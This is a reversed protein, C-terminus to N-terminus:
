TFLSQVMFWLSKWLSSTPGFKVRRTRGAMESAMMGDNDEIDFPVLPLAAPKGGKVAPPDNVPQVVVKLETTSGSVTSGNWHRAVPTVLLVM